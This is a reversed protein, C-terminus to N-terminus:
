NYKPGAQIIQSADLVKFTEALADRTLSPLQEWAMPGGEIHGKARVIPEYAAWFVKAIDEALRDDM